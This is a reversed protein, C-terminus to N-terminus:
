HYSGKTFCFYFIHRVLSLYLHEHFLSFYYYYYYYSCHNAIVYPAPDTWTHLTPRGFYWCVLILVSFLCLYLHEYLNFFLLILSLYIYIYIFLISYSLISILAFKEKLFNQVRVLSLPSLTLSSSLLNTDFYSSPFSYSKPASPITTRRGHPIMSFNVIRLKLNANWHTRSWNRMM